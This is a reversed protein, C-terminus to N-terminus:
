QEQSPPTAGPFPQVTGGDKSEGVRELGRRKALRAPIGGVITYPSVDRNVVSGAAVVAGRGIRVGGLITVNAAVWVDDEVIISGGTHGQERIPKDLSSTVHDSARMVVNPGVAVDNGLVITGKDCANIYVNANFSVRSGIKVAGDECAALTCNRLCSFNAGIDINQPGLVWLFVDVNAGPGLRRFRLKLYWRRLIIGMLGPILSSAFDTTSLLELYIRRFVRFAKITPRHSM